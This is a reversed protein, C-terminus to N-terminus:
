GIMVNCPTVVWYITVQTKVEM